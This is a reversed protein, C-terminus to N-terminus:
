VREWHSGATDKTVRYTEAFGASQLARHDLLYVSRGTTEARTALVDLLDEVGEDSLWATPEDWIEFDFRVGAWRQVLSALGLSAALRARQGEGGSFIEFRRGADHEPPRVEVEVGLRKADPDGTDFDVRWGPLGLALLSNRTEISLEHLVNELCYARCRRFGNRWYSTRELAAAKDQCAATAAGLEDMLRKREAEAAALRDTFPNTEDRARAAQRYVDESERRAYEIQARLVAQNRESAAQTAQADQWARDREATRTRAVSVADAADTVAKDLETEQSTLEALHTDRFAQDIEQGCSPCIGNDRFFRIDDRLRDRQTKLRTLEREWDVMGQRQEELLRRAEVPRAVPEQSPQEMDALKVLITDYRDLLEKLRQDRDAQWDTEQRRLVDLDPQAALAADLRGAKMRLETLEANEHNHRVLARQAAELWIELQLVEDLLDGRAPKALDVFLPQGQGFIVSHMFRPGSLGVLQDVDTQSAPAGNITVRESPATREIASLEGDINLVLMVAMRKTDYSRLDGHRLGKVSTGYLAYTIADFVTSKGAGNAGLTPDVKNVGSVLKLGPSASFDIVTSATFSRFNALCLSDLGITKM